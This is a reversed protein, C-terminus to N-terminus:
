ATPAPQLSAQRQHRTAVAIQGAHIAVVAVGLVALGLLAGALVDTPHHMGRYVRGVGVAVTLLAAILWVLGAALRSRVHANIIMALGGYLAATAATHGSPFSSTSPLSGLRVVNPRPRDVIFNITLFTLLELSLAIGLVLAGWRNRFILAVAVAVVLVVLVGLTNALQTSSRTWDNETTTRHMTFWRNVSEDWRTVGGFVHTLLLGAATFTMCILVYGCVAVTFVAAM